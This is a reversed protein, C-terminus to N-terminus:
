RVAPRPRLAAIEAPPPGPHLVGLRRTSRTMAVYLDNRGRPSAALIAAPDAILVSDFELGKAQRAGLLVVERTLDPSDGFSVSPAARAVAEGLERVRTDPVIVALRGARAAERATVEALTVPLADVAMRWPRVGTERVSQPPQQGPDIAALLDATAAMIEAPTRYNVTLEALRWRDGALPELVREWSTTGAPGGTQAVDGVITMSRAPCRRALLRWAMPSLEQAEDVIV